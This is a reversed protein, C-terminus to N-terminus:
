LWWHSWYLTASSCCLLKRVVGFSCM